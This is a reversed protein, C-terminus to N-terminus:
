DEDDKLALKVMSGVHPAEKLKKLWLEEGTGIWLGVFPVLVCAFGTLMICAEVSYGCEWAKNVLCSLACLGTVSGVSMVGVVVLGLTGWFLGKRTGNATALLTKGVQRRAAKVSKKRVVDFGWFFSRSFFEKFFKTM